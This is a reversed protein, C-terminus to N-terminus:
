RGPPTTALCYEFKETTPDWHEAYQQVGGEPDVLYVLYSAVGGEPPTWEFRVATTSPVEVVAAASAALTCSAVLAFMCRKWASGFGM